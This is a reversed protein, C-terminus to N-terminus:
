QFLGAHDATVPMHNGFSADILEIMEVAFHAQFHLAAHSGQHHALRQIHIFQLGKSDVPIYLQLGSKVKIQNCNSGINGAFQNGNGIIIIRQIRQSRGVHEPPNQGTDSDALNQTIVIIDPVGAINEVAFGMIIEFQSIHIPPLEQSIHFSCAVGYLFLLQHDVAGALEVCLIDGLAVGAGIYGDNEVHFSHDVIHLAAM